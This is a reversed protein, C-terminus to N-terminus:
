KETRLILTLEHFRGNPKFKKNKDMDYNISFLDHYSSSVIKNLISKDKIRKAWSNEMDYNLLAMGKVSFGNNDNSKYYSLIGYRENYLWLRTKGIIYEPMISFLNMSKIEAMYKVNKVMVLNSVVKKKRPKRQQKGTKFEIYLDIDHILTQYFELIKKKQDANLFSYGEVLQMDRKNFATEIEDHQKQYLPRIHTEIIDPKFNHDKLWKLFDFKLAKKKDFADSIIEDVEGMYQHVIEIEQKEQQNIYM